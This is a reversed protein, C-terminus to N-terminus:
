ARNPLQARAAKAAADIAELRGKGAPNPLEVDKYIWFKANGAAVKPLDMRSAKKYTDTDKLDAEKLPV